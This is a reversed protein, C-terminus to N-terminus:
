DLIRDSSLNTGEPSLEELDTNDVTGESCGVLPINRSSWRDPCTKHGHPCGQVRSPRKKLWRSDEPLPFNRYHGKCYATWVERREIRRGARYKDEKLLKKM